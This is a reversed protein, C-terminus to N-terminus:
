PGSERSNVSLSQRKTDSRAPSAGTAAVIVLLADQAVFQRSHGPPSDADWLSAALPLAQADIGRRQL